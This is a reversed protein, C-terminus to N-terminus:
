TSTPASTSGAAKLERTMANADNVAKRLKPVNVYDDNGIVLALRRPLSQGAAHGAFLVAAIISCCLTTVRNV